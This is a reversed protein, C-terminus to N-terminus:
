FEFRIGALIYDDSYGEFRDVNKRHQYRGFFTIDGIDHFRVGSEIYYDSDANNGILFDLNGELYLIKRVHRLIDWRAGFEINWDYDYDSTYIYRGGLVQWDIKKLFEFRKPSSFDIGKNKYGTRMGKTRGRIGVLGSKETFGDAANVDYRLGQRYIFELSKNDQEIGIGPEIQYTLFRPRYAGSPSISDVNTNLFGRLNEAQFLDINLSVNGNWEFDEAGVLNAYYGEMHMQPSFGERKKLSDRYEKSLTELRIGVMFFHESEGKWRELDHRYSYRLFPSLVARSYNIRTGLELDYDWRSQSGWIPNLGLELYPIYNKYRLIDWRLSLEGTAELEQERETVKKALSIAYGFQSLFEFEKQANFNIGYNKHGYRMNKTMLELGVVDWGREGGLRDIGNDCTHSYFFGFSREVGDYRLNLYRIRNRLNYPEDSSYAPGGSTTEENFELGWSIDRYRLIDMQILRQFRSKYNLQNSDYVSYEIMMNVEPIFKILREDEEAQIGSIFGSIFITTFGGIILLKQAKM